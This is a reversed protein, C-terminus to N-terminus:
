KDNYGILFYISGARMITFETYCYKCEVNEVSDMRYVGAREAGCVPCQPLSNGKQLISFDYFSSWEKELRDINQLFLDDDYIYDEVMFTKKGERCTLDLLSPIGSVRKIKCSQSCVTINKAVASAALQSSTLGVALIAQDLRRRTRISNISPATLKPNNIFGSCLYAFKQDM